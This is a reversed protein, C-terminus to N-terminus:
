HATLMRILCEDACIRVFFSVGDEEVDLYYQKEDFLVGTYTYSHLGKKKEEFTRRTEENWPTATMVADVSVRCVVTVRKGYYETIIFDPSRGEREVISYTYHHAVCMSFVMIMAVIAGLGLLQIMGPYPAGPIYSAAILLAALGLLGYCLLKEKKKQFRPAYEYIM